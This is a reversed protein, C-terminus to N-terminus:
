RKVEAHKRRMVYFFDRNDPYGIFRPVLEGDTLKDLESMGKVLHDLILQSGSRRYLGLYTHELANMDLLMAYDCRYAQFVRAMASPTADSFVAYILFHKGHNTQMALGSRMTRLKMEESGAWNGPGWRNVLRGPVGAQSAADFEVLAVGNQRAYKVRMLLQDDAVEWTKMVVAGNDLVLITALGPQLKSFVVGNEIFGYHSGHNVQALDGYRFAGHARKFGATFVAITQPATFPSLLGTSVLPSVGAIGDPGPLNPDRVQTLTRDSWVVRPHDTGLAYALDFQDLDFAVLYCLASAEVSDLNNVKSKHSQLLEAAILNPQILSVYVGRNGASGYWAGPTMGGPPPNELAIGFNGSTLGQTSYKSDILAPLPLDSPSVGDAASAPATAQIKGTERYRDGMIYHGASLVREGNWVHDRLFEATAELTTRHGTTPNRLFLRSECLPYFPIRSNRAQDLTRSSGFLDCALRNGGEIIVLGTPVKDDLVVKRTEPKPNELHYSLEPGGEQAEVTLVYWINITPNLNILTVTRGSGPGIRISSTHRFPQLELITKPTDSAAMIAFVALSAITLLRLPKM